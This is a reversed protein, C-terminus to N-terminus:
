NGFTVAKLVGEIEAVREARSYRQKVVEVGRLGMALRNRESMECVQRIARVMAEPNEPECTVGCNGDQIVNRADGTVAALIPKGVAMYSFIKHPITIKFLPDDRLHVFLLDALAFLESMSEQPYKGLFRVNKLRKEDVESMLGPKAIGDGVLVFQVAPLDQIMKAAEIMTDLGQAAGINGAYMINFKGALGTERALEHNQRTPFYVSTDVWNSVEYIKSTSVGKEVLNKKFGPSIVLVASAKRYVWKAAAGVLNLLYENQMMGTARLTEPWMDQIQYVFPVRFRRSIAFAPLGVTLPPHRVFVVDPKQLLWPALLSSSVAFSIFNNMRKFGSRSHNPYLPVRLVPVQEVMEWQWLRIRYGSYLKGTPYNPFGTLVTVDHGRRQLTQVLEQFMSTPEPLYFQSIFLIRMASSAENAM